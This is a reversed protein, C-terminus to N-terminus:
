LIPQRSARSCRPTLRAVSSVEAGVPEGTRACRRTSVGALMRELVVTTLQDRPAFHRYTALEVESAGDASRVRPRSVPV